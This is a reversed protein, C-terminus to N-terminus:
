RSPIRWNISNQGVNLTVLNAIKQVKPLWEFSTADIIKGLDRMKNPLQQMPSLIM